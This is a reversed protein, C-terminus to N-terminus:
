VSTLVAGVSSFSLFVPLEALGTSDRYLDRYTGAERTTAAFILQDCLAQASEFLQKKPSTRPHTIRHLCGKTDQAAESTKLALYKPPKYCTWTELTPTGSTPHRLSSSWTQTEERKWPHISPSVM